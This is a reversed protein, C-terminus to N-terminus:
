QIFIHDRSKPGTSAVNSIRLGRLFAVMSAIYTMKEMLTSGDNWYWERFRDMFEVCIPLQVTAKKPGELLIVSAFLSAHINRISRRAVILSESSFVSANGGYIIIIGRLNTLSKSIQPGTFNMVDELYVIFEMVWRVGQTISCESFYTDYLSHLNVYELWIAETWRFGALTKVDWSKELLTIM